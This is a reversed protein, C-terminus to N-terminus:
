RTIQRLTNPHKCKMWYKVITLMADEMAAMTSEKVFFGQVTLNYAQLIDSPRAATSLFIFPICRRRLTDDENIKERLELGNMVPMNIDCLILFTERTTTKLYELADKGNDFFILDSGVGIREFIKQILYQDDADDEVVIIPETVFHKQPM